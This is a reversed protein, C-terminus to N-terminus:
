YEKRKKDSLESTSEEDRDRKAKSKVEFERTLGIQNTLLSTFSEDTMEVEEEDSDSDSELNMEALTMNFSRISVDLKMWLLNDKGVINEVIFLFTALRQPITKLADADATSINELKKITNFKDVLIDLGESLYQLIESQQVEQVVENVIEKAQDDESDEIANEINQFLEMMKNQFNLKKASEILGLETMINELEKYNEVVLMDIKAKYEYYYLGFRDGNKQFLTVLYSLYKKAESVNGLNIECRIMDMVISVNYTWAFPQTKVKSVHIFLALKYDNLAKAHDNAKKAQDARMCYLERLRIYHFKLEPNDNDSTLKAELNKIENEKETIMETLSNELKDKCAQKLLDNNLGHWPSCDITNTLHCALEIPLANFTKKFAAESKVAIYTKFTDGRECVRVYPFGAQKIFAEINQNDSDEYDYGEYIMVGDDALLSEVNKLMTHIDKVASICEFYIANFYKKPLDATSKGLNVTYNAGDEENINITIVNSPNFNRACKEHHWGTAIVINKPLM